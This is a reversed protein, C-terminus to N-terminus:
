TIQVETQTLILKLAEFHYIERLLVHNNASKVGHTHSTLWLALSNTTTMQSQCSVSTM